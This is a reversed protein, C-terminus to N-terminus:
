STTLLAVSPADMTGVSRSQARAHQVVGVQSPYENPLPMEALQKRRAFMVPTMGFWRTVEATRVRARPQSPPPPVGGAALRISPKAAM